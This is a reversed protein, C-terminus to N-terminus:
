TPTGDAFHYSSSKRRDDPTTSWRPCMLGYLGSVVVRLRSQRRLWNALDAGFPSRSAERQVRVYGRASDRKYYRLRHDISM